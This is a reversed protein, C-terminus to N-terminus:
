AMLAPRAGPQREESLDLFSQAFEDIPQSAPRHQPVHRRELRERQGTPMAVAREAREVEQQRVDLAALDHDEALREGPRVLVEGPKRVHLSKM